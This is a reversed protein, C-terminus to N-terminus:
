KTGELAAQADLCKKDCDPFGHRTPCAFYHWGADDYVTGLARLAPALAQTRGEFHDFDYAYGDILSQRHGWEKIADAVSQKFGVKGTHHGGDRHIVALLDKAQTVQADVKVCDIAWMHMGSSSRQIDDQKVM